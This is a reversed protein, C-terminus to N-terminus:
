TYRSFPASVRHLETEKAKLLNIVRTEGAVLLRDIVSTLVMRIPVHLAKPSIQRLVLRRQTYVRGCLLRGCILGFLSVRM